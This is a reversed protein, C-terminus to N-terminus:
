EVRRTLGVYSLVKGDSIVFADSCGYRTRTPILGGIVVRSPQKYTYIFVQCRQFADDETWKAAPHAIRLAYRYSEFLRALNLEVIGPERAEEDALLAPLSSVGVKIEPEGLLSLLLDAYM